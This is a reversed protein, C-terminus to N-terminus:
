FLNRSGSIMKSSQFKDHSFHLRDSRVAIPMPQDGSATMKLSDDHNYSFDLKGKSQKELENVVQTDLSTDTKIEVHLNKALLVGSILLINDRNAELIFQPNAAHMDADTLYDQIVGLPIEKTIAHDYSVKVSKGHKLKATIGLSKVGFVELLHHALSMGINFKYENKLNSNVNLAPSQVVSLEGKGNIIDSIDPYYLSARNLNKKIWLQKIQQDRVPGDIYDFGQRSLEKTLNM